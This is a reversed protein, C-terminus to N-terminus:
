ENYMCMLMWKFSDHADSLKSLVNISLNTSSSIICLYPSIYPTFETMQNDALKYVHILMNLM